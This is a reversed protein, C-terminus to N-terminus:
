DSISYNNTDKTKVIVISLGGKAGLLGNAVAIREVAQIEPDPINSVKALAAASSSKALLSTFRSWTVTSPWSGKFAQNPDDADSDADYLKEALKFGREIVEQMAATDGLRAYTEAIDLLLAGQLFEEKVSPIIKLAESLAERAYGPSTKVLDKALDILGLLRANRFDPLSMIGALAQKPDKGAEERIKSERKQLEDQYRDDASAEERNGTRISMSTPTGDRPNLSKLGDPYQQLASHVDHNEQVLEDARDHDLERLIPLVEFLVYEYNSNFSASGKQAGVTIQVQTDSGHAQKLLEDVAQLAMEPPVTQWFRSVFVGFDDAGFKAHEHQTYSSLAQAFLNQRDAAMQQPLAEMLEGATQYPFEEDGTQNLLALARGFQKDKTDKNVLETIAIMRPGGSLQDLLSECYAPNLVVLKRIIQTQLSRKVQTSVPEDEITQSAEFAEELTRMSRSDRITEYGRAIEFLAFTRMVPAFGKALGAQSRLIDLGQKQEPTLRSKAPAASLSKRAPQPKPAQGQLTAALIMFAVLGLRVRM